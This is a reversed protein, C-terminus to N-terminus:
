FNMQAVSELLKGCDITEKLILERKEFGNHGFESTGCRIINSIIFKYNLLM